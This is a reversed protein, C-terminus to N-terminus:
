SVIFAKLGYSEVLIKWEKMVVDPILSLEAIPYPRSLSDYRAKGLHHLPLLDIEVLSSLSLAFDCTARINDESDNYGPIIPLRIYVPVHKESVARLNSLILDNSAGTLEKHRQPNMHKIDWLFFDVYPLVGEVSAWPVHGSSDVGVGIAERKLERLLEGTFEPNLLAEGGSITVGGGSHRYFVTDKRAEECLRRVTMEKGLLLIAESPCVDTCKGCSNCLYRNLSMTEDASGIANTPCVDTCRGCHICHDPRVAIEPECKQSEPTSCWPCRLPCGKFLILTRIGPGNHVTMRAISLVVRKKEAIDSGNTLVRM